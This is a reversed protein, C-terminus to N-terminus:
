AARLSRNAIKELAKEMEDIRANIATVEAADAKVKIMRVFSEAVEIPMKGSATADIVTDIAENISKGKLDLALKLYQGPSAGAYVLMTNSATVKANAHKPDTSTMVAHLVAVAEAIHHAALKQTKVAAAQKASLMKETAERKISRRAAIGSLKQTVKVKDQDTAM